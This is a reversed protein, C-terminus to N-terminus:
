REDDRDIDFWVTTHGEEYLVGWRTAMDAVLRLGFGGLEGEGAEVDVDKLRPGAGPELPGDDVVKVQTTMGTKSVVIVVEGGPQGSRSHRVANAFLETTLLALTDNEDIRRGAYTRVWRRAVAALQRLGYVAVADGMPLSHGTVIPSRM